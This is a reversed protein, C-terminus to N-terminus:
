FGVKLVLQLTRQGGGFYNVAKLFNPDSLTAYTSGAGGAAFVSANAPSYQRHNFINFADVRFQLNVKETVKTNKAMAMDWQNIGNSRVNDRGTNTIVGAQAQVFYATPDNALYGVINASGGACAGSTATVSTAGTGANRCVFSVTTGTLAPSVSPNTLARDGAADGNGNSDVGSQVTVPQGTQWIWSGTYQWGNMVTKAIINDTFTEKPIQYVYTMAFKNTADLASTARENALNYSNEPRRPNYGSTNLDNDANSINKSWTWNFRAQLGHDMSHVVDVSGGHYLSQGNDAYSTITNTFGTGAFRNATGTGLLANFQSLTPSSAAVTAPVSAAAFYTPLGAFGREFPTIGQIQVQIPLHMAHTGLYRLEVTTNKLVEHQVSLTWDFVKPAVTDPLLNGTLTRATAQTSPPAYPVRMAGGVLFGAGLPASCWAPPTPTSCTTTPNLVTNLEPPAGNTTFNQPTVDYGIGAGGRIAWKGSGTPDYAFGVRPAFNNYDEAPSHFVLEPFFNVGAGNPLNAIANLGQKNAGVANSNFEWRLGLNFTLRPTFKFDDNVFLSVGNANQIFTGDGVGQLSTGTITPKQDNVFESLSGYAYQGRSNQLFVSPGTYWRYEGGWKWTHRGIAYTLSDSVQYQNTIRGQPFNGNPGISFGTMGTILVNPYNAALGDLPFSSNLRSADAKFDNVMRNNITYVEDFIGKKYTTVVSAAFQPEPVSGFSPNVVSTDLYRWRMTHSHINLDTGVYWDKQNQFSPAVASFTGMAVPTGNVTISPRDNAPAIPFQAALDKVQQNAALTNITALGTATPATIATAASGFGIPNYQYSAYVFLHDKIIPGSLDGGFQNYDFRNKDTKTGALIAANETHSGANLGRNQFYEWAKGHFQNSGSKLVTNFQGGSAHGYEASYQNTSIAFEAVSDLIVPQSSITVVPDDNNAGDITFSNQRGRLGGVSGGTGSTGGAAATTNPVFIALNLQSSGGRGGGTPLETVNLSSFSNTIQSTETQVANAGTQVDVVTSEAGVSLKASVEVVQAARIEVNKRVYPAFGTAEVKVTYTGILLNPVTYSGASTTETVQSVNTADNTVTVKAHAVVAGTRDLVDGSLTGDARQAVAGAVLFLTALAIAVARMLGFKQCNRDM